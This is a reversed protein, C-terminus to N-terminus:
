QHHLYVKSSHYKDERAREITISDLDLGKIMLNVWFLVHGVEKALMERNTDGDPHDPHASAYGHRWIKNVIQIVEACEESLCALREQEAPTLEHFPETKM